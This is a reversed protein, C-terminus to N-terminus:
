YINLTRASPDTANTWKPMWYHPIIHTQLPFVKIFIDQYWEADNNHGFIKATEQLQEFWSNIKTSVGDSFAEKRRYLVEKPLLDPYLVNFADRLFQKEMKNKTPRRLKVPLSLYTDVYKPDLFPLRAELGFNALCRDVRLGDYMHIESLLDLSDQDAIEDNPAYYNYLYGMAVEDSGDGNLIIKINTKESIYKALLYQPISARVTTTDYSEIAEVVDKVHDIADETTVLINHHDTELYEAVQNAYDFDTAKEDFGITFTVIHNFKCIKKAVAVVLSSDLGGSLLFGINREGELRVKVSDIFADTVEKYKEMLIKNDDENYSLKEYISINPNIVYHHDLKSSPEEKFKSMNIKVYTNPKFHYIKYKTQIIGKLLSSFIIGKDTIAYYLPRVGYTDRSAIIEVDNEKQIRGIFAYEGRLEAIVKHINSDYYDILHCIVECDSNSKMIFGYKQIIEKYNYIEGNCVLQLISGNKLNYIFPQDGNPSLDHISLRYFSFYYDPGKLKCNRDPGRVKLHTAFRAYNAYEDKIFFHGKKRFYAWIGCM